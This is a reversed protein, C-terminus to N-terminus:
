MRIVIPEPPLVRRNGEISKPRSRRFLWDRGLFDHWHTRRSFEPGVEDVWDAKGLERFRYGPTTFSEPPKERVTYFRDAEPVVFHMWRGTAILCRQHTEFQEPGQFVREFFRM